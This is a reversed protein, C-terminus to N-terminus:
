NHKFVSMDHEGILENYKKNVYNKQEQTAEKYDNIKSCEVIRYIIRNGERYKLDYIPTIDADEIHVGDKDKVVTFDAILGVDTYLYTKEAEKPRQASLFNGLSYIIWVKRGNSDYVESKKPVHPHSGIVMDAGMDAVERYLRYQEDEVKRVYENGMHLWVMVFDCKGKAKIIDNKIKEEDIYNVTGEPAPIGNTGYTYAILAMKIGNKEIYAIKDDEPLGAGTVLLNRKKIEDLYNYFGAKGTDMVHNNAMSIIDFGTDKLADLASAPTNFCPYGTPKWTPHMSGELCVAAVDSNIIRPKIDEFMYHFDYGKNNGLYASQILGDHFMIDGAITVKAKKVEEVKVEQPPIETGKVDKVNKKSLSDCSSLLFIFIFSFCLTKTLKKVIVGGINPATGTQGYVM